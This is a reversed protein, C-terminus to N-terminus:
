IRRCVKSGSYISYFPDTTSGAFSGINIIAGKKREKMGPLVIRTMKVMSRNNVEILAEVKEEPLDELVQQRCLRKL